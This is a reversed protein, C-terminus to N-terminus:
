SRNILIRWCCSSLPVPRLDGPGNWRIGNIGHQPDHMRRAVEMLEDLTEPSSFGEQDLFDQRYIHLEPTTQGPLGFLTSGFRVTSLTEPSLDPLDQSSPASMDEVPLKLKKEIPEAM